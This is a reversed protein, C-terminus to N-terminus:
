PVGADLVPDFAPKLRAAFWTAYHGYDAFAARGDVVFPCQGGRCVLRDVRVIRVGPQHELADIAALINANETLYAARSMATATGVGGHFALNRAAVSAINFGPLPVPGVIVVQKGHAHLGAVLARLRRIADLYREAPKPDRGLRVGAEDRYQPWDEALIVTKAPLTVIEAYNARQIAGCTPDASDGLVPACGNANVLLLRRGGLAPVYM